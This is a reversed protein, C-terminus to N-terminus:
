ELSASWCFQDVGDPVETRQHRDREPCELVEGLVLGLPPNHLLREEHDGNWGDPEIEYKECPLCEVCRYIYKDELYIFRDIGNQLAILSVPGNTVIIKLM